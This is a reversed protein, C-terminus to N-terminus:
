KRTQSKKAEEELDELSNADGYDGKSNRRSATAAKIKQESPIAITNKRWKDLREQMKETLNNV